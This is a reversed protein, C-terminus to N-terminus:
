AAGGTAATACQGQQTGCATVTLNGKNGSANAADACKNHQVDCSRALANQLNKFTADDQVQFRGNATATVPPAPVGLSGTFTQLNEGGNLASTSGGKSSPQQTCGTTSPYPSASPSSSNYQATDPNAPPSASGKNGNANQCFPFTNAQSGKKVFKGTAPDFFLDPGNAPDQAQVLCNLEQNKPAKQCFVSNRLTPPSTTFDPPTNKEAQRYEKALALMNAQTAADFQKSADVIRDALDQQSCEPKAALLNDIAQGSLVGCVQGPCAAGLKGIVPPNEQQFRRPHLFVPKDDREAWFMRGLTLDSLSLAGLITLSLAVGNLMRFCCSHLLPHEVAFPSSLSGLAFLSTVLTSQHPSTFLRDVAGALQITRREVSLSRFLM